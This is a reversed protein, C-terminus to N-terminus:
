CIITNQSSNLYEAETNPHVDCYLGIKEQNKM